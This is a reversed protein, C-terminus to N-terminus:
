CPWTWAITATVTVSADSSPPSHDIDVPNLGVVPGGECGWWTEGFAHDSPAFPDVEDPCITSTSSVSYGNFTLSQTNDQCSGKYITGNPRWSVITNASGYRIVGRFESLNSWGTEAGSGTGADSMYWDSGNAQVLRQVDCFRGYASGGDGTVKVCPSAMITGSSNATMADPSAAANGTTTQNSDRQGSMAALTNELTVNPGLDIHTDAAMQFAEQPTAGAAIANNIFTQGSAMAASITPQQKPDPTTVSATVGGANGDAGGPNDITVTSGVPAAVTVDAGDTKWTGVAQGDPLQHESVFQTVAGQVNFYQSHPEFAAGSPATGAALLLVGAGLAAALSRKKVLEGTQNTDM